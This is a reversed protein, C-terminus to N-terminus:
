QTKSKELAQLELLEKYEREEILECIARVAPDENDYKGKWPRDPEPVPQLEPPPEVGPNEAKWAELKKQEEEEALQQEIEEVEDEYYPFWDCPYECNVCDRPPDCKTVAEAMEFGDNDYCLSRVPKRTAAPYRPLLSKVITIGHLYTGAEKQTIRKEGMAWLTEQVGTVCSDSDELLPMRFPTGPHAPPAYKREHLNRHRYCFQSDRLIADTCKRGSSFVHRCEIHM